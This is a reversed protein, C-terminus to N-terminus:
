IHGYPPEAGIVAHYKDCGIPDVLLSFGGDECGDEIDNHRDWQDSPEMTVHAISGDSGGDRRFEGIKEHHDEVHDPDGIDGRELLVEDRKGFAQHSADHRSDHKEIEGHVVAPLEDQHAADGDRQEDWGGHERAGDALIFDRRKEIDDFCSSPHFRFLTLFGEEPIHQMICAMDSLHRVDM